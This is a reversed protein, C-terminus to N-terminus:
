IVIISPSSSPSFKTMNNIYIYICTHLRIIIQYRTFPIFSAFLSYYPPICYIAHFAFTLLILERYLRQYVNAFRWTNFNLCVRACACLCLVVFIHAYFVSKVFFDFQATSSSFFYHYFIWAFKVILLAKKRRIWSSNKPFKCIFLIVRTSHIYRLKILFEYKRRNVLPFYKMRMSFSMCLFLQM